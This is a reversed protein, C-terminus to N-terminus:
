RQLKPESALAIWNEYINERKKGAPSYPLGPQWLYKPHSRDSRRQWRVSAPCSSRDNHDRGYLIVTILDQRCYSRSRQPLPPQERPLGHEEDLLILGLENLPAFVASRAGLVVRYHGQAIGQWTERRKSGLLGSHLVALKQGLRGQLMDVMQPTLAIEPVLFLVQKGQALVQQARRIYLETKGSGTVGFLLVPRNQGQAEQQIMTLAHEQAVTLDRSCPQQPEAGDQWVTVEELSLIGGKVMTRLLAAGFREILEEAPLVDREGFYAAVQQQKVARSSVGVERQLRYQRKVVSKPLRGTLTLGAPLMAQFAATRPCLYYRALWNGLAILEPSFLPRDGVLGLLSKIKNEPVDATETLEVVVGELRQQQFPVQVVSGVGVRGRLEPPIRYHFVRDVAQAKRNIIVAAFVDTM